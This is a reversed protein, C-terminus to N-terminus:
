WGKSRRTCWRWQFPCLGLNENWFAAISVKLRFPYDYEDFRKGRKTILMLIIANRLEEEKELMLRYEWEKAQIDTGM